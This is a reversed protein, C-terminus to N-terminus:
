HIRSELVLEIWAGDSFYWLRRPVVTRSKKDLKGEVKVPENVLYAFSSTPISLYFFKGKKTLIGAPLGAKLACFSAFEHKGGRGGTHFYDRAETLDGKIEPSCSSIIVMILVWFAMQFYSM